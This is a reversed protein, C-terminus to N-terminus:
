MMTMWIDNLTMKRDGTKHKVKTKCKLGGSM